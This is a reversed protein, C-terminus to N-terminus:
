RLHEQAGVSYAEALWGRLEADIEEPRTLRFAHLHNRPSFTEV